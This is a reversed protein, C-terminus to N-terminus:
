SIVIFFDFNSSILKGIVPLILPHEPPYEKLLYFINSFLINHYDSSILAFKKLTKCSEFAHRRRVLYVYM